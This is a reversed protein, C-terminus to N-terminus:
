ARGLASCPHLAPRVHFCNGAMGESVDDNEGGDAIHLKVPLGTWENSRYDRYELKGQWRGVLSQRAEAVTIPLVAAPSAATVSVLIPGVPDLM